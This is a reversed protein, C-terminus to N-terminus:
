VRVVVVTALVWRPPPRGLAAPVEWGVGDLEVTCTLVTVVTAADGCVAALRVAPGLGAGAM